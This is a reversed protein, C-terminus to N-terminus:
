PTSGHADTRDVSRQAKLRRYASGGVVLGTAAKFREAFAKDCPRVGGPCAARQLVVRVYATQKDTVRGDFVTEAIERTTHGASALSRIREAKTLITRRM